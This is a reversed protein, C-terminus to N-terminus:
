HSLHRARARTSPNPTSPSHPTNVGVKFHSGAHPCAPNVFPCSTTSKDRFWVSSILTLKRERWCGLKHTHTHERAPVCAGGGKRGGEKGKSLAKLCDFTLLLKEIIRELGREGGCVKKMASIHSFKLYLLFFVSFPNSIFRVFLSMFIFGFNQTWLCM